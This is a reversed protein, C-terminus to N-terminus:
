TEVDAGISFFRLRGIGAQSRRRSICMGKKCASGFRRRFRKKKCFLGEREDAGHPLVGLLFTEKM